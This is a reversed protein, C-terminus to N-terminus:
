FLFSFCYILVMVIPVCFLTTWTVSLATVRKDIGYPVLFMNTSTIPLISNIIIVSFWANPVIGLLYSPIMFLCTLLPTILVTLLFIHRVWLWHNSINIHKSFSFLQRFEKRKLDHPHIGAGVYYLAAPITISTIFLFVISGESGFDSIELGTYRHLLIALSAVFVLYFPFLRLYWPLAQRTSTHTKKYLRSLLYPIIAFLFLAGVSMYIAAFVQWEAIALMAGGVFASSRGQNTFFTKIFHSRSSGELKLKKSIYLSYGYALFYMLIFVAICLLAFSIENEQFDVGLFIRFLLLPVFMYLLILGIKKMISDIKQENFISSLFATVLFGVLIWPLTWLGQIYPLIVKLLEIM